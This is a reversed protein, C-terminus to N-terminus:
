RESITGTPAPGISLKARGPPLTVPAELAVRPKGAPLQRQQALDRRADRM